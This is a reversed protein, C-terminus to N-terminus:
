KMLGEYVLDKMARDIATNIYESLEAAPMAGCAENQVLERLLANFVVSKIKLRRRDRFATDSSDTM